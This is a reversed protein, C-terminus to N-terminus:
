EGIITAFIVVDFDTAVDIAFDVDLDDTCVVGVFEIGDVGFADVIM